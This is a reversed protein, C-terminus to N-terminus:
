RLGTMRVPVFLGNSQPALAFSKPAPIGDVRFGSPADNSQPSTTSRGTFLAASHWDSATVAPLTMNGIPLDPLLRTLRLVYRKTEDQLPRLGALYDQFRKPGANYAALFGSAGFRDFMERLYAAGGIINDHPDFPDSGLHYQVRLASWTDPMLQMLGMAGKSSVAKPNGGSEVRMVARLWSVPMAFRQSADLIFSAYPNSVAIADTEATKAHVGSCVFPMTFMVFTGVRLLHLATASCRLLGRSALAIAPVSHPGLTIATASNSIRSRSRQM